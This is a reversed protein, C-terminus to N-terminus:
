RHFQITVLMELSIPRGDLKSPVYKRDRLASVAADRLLIPGSIAKAETVKGSKDIVIRVVVDGSIGAQRAMEPYVVPPASILRPPKVNGGVQVPGEPALQQQPPPPPLNAPVSETSPLAVGQGGALAGADISPATGDGSADTRAATTPHANLAGFMDPVAPAAKQKASQSVKSQFASQAPKNPAAESMEGREPERSHAVPSPTALSTGTPEAAGPAPTAPAQEIPAPSPATPNSVPNAAVPAQPVAPATIAARQQNVPRQHVFLFYYGGGGAAALLLGVCAAILAWNKGEKQDKDATTGLPSYELGAGFAPRAPARDEDAAASAAFRGFTSPEHAALAENAGSTEAGRYTETQHPVADKVQEAIPFPVLPAAGTDGRLQELSFSVSGATSASAPTQVATSSASAVTAAPKEIVAPAPPAAKQENTEAKPIESKPIETKSVPTAIPAAAPSPTVRAPVISAAAAPSAVKQAPEPGDSQFRVGWYGPQPHSFEVEVYCHLNPNTRTKVVRCIADQRTKLNTLVIAQGVGVQTTMKLVGGLPFVIMTSTQEEFPETHSTTGRVVEVVRSGHVKVPVDLSVADSRLHGSDPKPRSGEQSAPVQGVELTEKLPTM